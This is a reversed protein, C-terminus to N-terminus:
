ILEARIAVEASLNSCIEVTLLKVLVVLIDTDVGGIELNVTLIGRSKRYHHLLAVAVVTDDNIGSSVAIKGGFIDVLRELTIGIRKIESKLYGESYCSRSRANRSGAINRDEHISSGCALIM